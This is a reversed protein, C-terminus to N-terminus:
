KYIEKLKNPLDEYTVEEWKTVGRLLMYELKLYAGEKLERVTYFKINKEKGDETYSKLKYEYPMDTDDVKKVKTNDILTYYTTNEYFSFYYIAICAGFFLIIGIITLIFNKM